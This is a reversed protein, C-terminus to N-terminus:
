FYNVIVGNAKPLYNALKLFDSYDTSNRDLVVTPMDSSPIPPMGPLYVLGNMDRFSGPYDRDLVPLYLIEVLCCAGSTIFSYVAINLNAAAMMASTCFLDSILATPSLLRLANDVNRVSRGILDFIIAESTPYAELDLPRMFWVMLGPKGSRM